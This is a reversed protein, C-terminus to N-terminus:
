IKEKRKRYQYNFLKISKATIKLKLNEVDMPSNGLCFGSAETIPSKPNITFFDDRGFRLNENDTWFLTTAVDLATGTISPHVSKVTLFDTKIGTWNDLKYAYTIVDGKKIGVINKEM